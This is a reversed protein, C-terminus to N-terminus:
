TANRVYRSGASAHAGGSSSRRILCCLGLPVSSCTSITAEGFRGPWSDPTLSASLTGEATDAGEM